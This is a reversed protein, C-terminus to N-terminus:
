SKYQMRNDKHCMNPDTSHTFTHIYTHIYTHQSEHTYSNFMTSYIVFDDLMKDAPSNWINWIYRVHVAIRMLLM